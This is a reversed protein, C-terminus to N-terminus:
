GPSLFSISNFPIGVDEVIPYYGPLLTPGLQRRVNNYFKWTGELIIVSSIRENFFNDDPANLDEATFVHKHAGRFNVHEFLILHAM